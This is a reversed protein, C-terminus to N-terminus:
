NLKMAADVIVTVTLRELYNGDDRHVNGLSSVLMVDLVATWVVLLEKAVVNALNVGALKLKDGSGVPLKDAHTCRIVRELELVSDRIYLGKASYSGNL